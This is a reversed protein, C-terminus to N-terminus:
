KYEPVVSTGQIKLITAIDHRGDERLQMQDSTLRRTFPTEKEQVIAEIEDEVRKKAAQSRPCDHWGEM